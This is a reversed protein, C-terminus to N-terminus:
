LASCLWDKANSHGVEFGDAQKLTVDNGQFDRSDRLGKSV